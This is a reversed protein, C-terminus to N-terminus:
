VGVVHLRHCTASEDDGLFRQRFLKEDYHFIASFRPDAVPLCGSMCGELSCVSFVCVCVCEHVYVIKQAM